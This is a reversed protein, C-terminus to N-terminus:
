KYGIQRYVFTNRQDFLVPVLKMRLDCILIMNKNEVQLSYIRRWKKM